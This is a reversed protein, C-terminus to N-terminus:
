NEDLIKRFDKKLIKISYKNGVSDILAFKIRNPQKDLDIQNVMEKTFIFIYKEGYKITKPLKTM